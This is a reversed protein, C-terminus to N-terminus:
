EYKEGTKNLKITFTAGTNNSYVQLEGNMSEDLLMKAMYLGLGTGEKKFKTTFYPDFIKDIDEPKIGGGNDIIDIKLFDKNNDIFIKINKNTINQIEFNDLANNLIILIVQLLENEYTKYVIKNKTDIDILVDKLRGNLLVLAKSIVDHINTDVMIKNPRFFNAFDEITDSMYKLNKQANGVKDNVIDKNITPEDIIDEIVALNLNIRNLPQRWQHAINGLMEGMSALKSQKFIMKDKERNKEVEDKIKIELNKNLNEIEKKLRNQKILFFIMIFFAFIFGISVKWVLSYDIGKEYKIAIYKNFIAQKTQSPINNVAKQFINLLTLDDNRIAVGLEWREKFKGAVKLDSLHTTQFMYGIDAISGIFGFLQNNTVKELGDINNKVEIINLNPYKLKLLETFAYGQVIGVKKNKLEKFDDIFSFNNKTALVLPVSLYPTTFNMYQKRNPTEMAMSIIDCKRQKAFKLTQTWSKTKIVKIPINLEKEFIKFYDSSIGIHNGKSDIQEFPMWDPDICMTIQKKNKLYIEEKNTLDKTEKTKKYIFKDFDIKDKTLGMLNYVDYIRKINQKNITGVSKTNLYALKKLAIAEYILAERTKNQTNYKELIINITEEINDFAYEWGKLSANNFNEVRQPNNDLESQSTFLIDDYFDFGYEKPDWVDYAINQKDLEYLENTSFVSSIDAKKDILDQLKFTQKVVTMDKISIYNSHFMSEFPATQINNDIIMLRKNKFDRVSKIGSSKLSVLVHPSSQLIASLIVIDAGNSKDLVVSPYNTAYTSKGIQVDRVIDTDFTFEKIDVDLGANKYFGKEKAMYFGAFEFQHKWQLQLSVKDLKTIENAILFTNLSIILILIKKIM